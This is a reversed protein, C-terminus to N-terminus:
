RCVGGIVPGRIGLSGNNPFNYFKVNDLTLGRDWPLILGVATNSYTSTSDTNGILTCNSILPGVNPDFFSSMFYTNPFKNHYILRAEISSAEQDYSIMNRFQINNSNVWEAGKNCLYTILTDFRAPSPTTDSCSGSATPHYRPFIWLGFKGSSHVTNNFFKGFLMNAPCYDLTFSPGDPHDLLRYWFGFHSGGAVANGM